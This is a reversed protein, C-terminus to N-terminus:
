DGEDEGFIRNVAERDSEGYYGNLYVDKVPLSLEEGLQRIGILAELRVKRSEDGLFSSYYELRLRNVVDPNEALVEGFLRSGVQVALMRYVPNPLGSLKKWQQFSMENLNGDADMMGAVVIKYLDLDIKRTTEDAAREHIFEFLERGGKSSSMFAALYLGYLGKQLRVNENELHLHSPFGESKLEMSLRSWLDEPPVVEVSEKEGMSIQYYKNWVDLAPKASSSLIKRIDLNVEHIHQPTNVNLQNAPLEKLEFNGSEVSRGEPAPQSAESRPAAASPKLLSEDVKEEPNKENCASLLVFVWIALKTM